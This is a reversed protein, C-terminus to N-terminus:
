YIVFRPFMKRYNIEKIQKKSAVLESIDLGMKIVEDVNAYCFLGLRGFSVLNNTQTLSNLIKTLRKEYNLSYIPYAHPIRKVFYFEVNKRHLFDHEEFAKLCEEFLEKDKKNWIADNENCTFEVVLGNKGKPVAERSFMGLEYARNFPIKTGSFYVWPSGFVMPKKIGLFLLTEARYELNSATSVVEEPLKGKLLFVLENLPITSLVFDCEKILTQNGSKFKVRNIRKGKFDFSISSSNFFVSGNNKILDSYFKDCVQGIGKRPYYNEMMSPDESHFRKKGTLTSIILEFLSLVPIRKEAFDKSLYKPDIGWVKSAYPKFYIDYLLKGFRRTVWEEFSNGKKNKSLRLRARTILFDIACLFSLLPNINRFVDMGKLPYKVWRNRYFIKSSIGVRQFDDKLLEKLLQEVDKHVTHINHPGLDFLFGNKKITRANGGIFSSKELVTVEHGKKSLNWAASLGAPGAGIIIYKIKIM